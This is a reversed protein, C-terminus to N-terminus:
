GLYGNILGSLFSSWSPLSTVPKGQGPISGPGASEYGPVSAVAGRLRRKIPPSSIFCVNIMKKNFLLLQYAYHRAALAIIVSM